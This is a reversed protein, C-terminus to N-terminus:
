LKGFIKKIFKIIVQNNMTNIQKNNLLIKAEMLLTWDVKNILKKNMNAFNLNNIM